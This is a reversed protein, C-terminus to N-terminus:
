MNGMMNNGFGVNGMMNNGFGMGGMGGGMGMGGQMMQRQQRHKQISEISANVAKVGKEIQEPTGKIFVRKTGDPQLFNELQIWAGTEAKLKNINAGAKGVFLACDENKVAMTVQEGQQQQPAM